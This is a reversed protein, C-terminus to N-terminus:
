PYTRIFPKGVGPLVAEVRPILAEARRKDDEPGVAVRFLSAPTGIPEVFVDLGKGRLQRAVGDAKDRSSYNGVQVIWTTIKPPAAPAKPAPPPAAPAKAAPPTLKAVPAPPAKPKEAPAPAPEAVVAEAQPMPTPEAVAPEEVVPERAIPEVPPVPELHSPAPAETEPGATPPPADTPVAIEDKLVQSKFTLNERPPINGATTADGPVPEDEVLMPVFIVALSVLVAAGILRRKLRDDV